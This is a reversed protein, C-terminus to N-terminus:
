ATRRVWPALLAAAGSQRIPNASGPAMRAKVANGIQMAGEIVGFGRREHVHGATRIIAEDRIVEPATGGRLYGDVLAVAIGLVRMAEATTAADDSNGHEDRIAIGLAAALSAADVAM